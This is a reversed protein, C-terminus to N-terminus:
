WFKHYESREVAFHDDKGNWNKKPVVELKTPANQPFQDSHWTVELYDATTLKYKAHSKETKPWRSRRNFVHSGPGVGIANLKEGHKLQVKM